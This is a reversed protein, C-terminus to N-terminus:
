RSRQLRGFALIAECEESTLKVTPQLVDTGDRGLPGHWGGVPTLLDLQSLYRLNAGERDADDTRQRKQPEEVDQAKRKRCRGEEPKPSQEEPLAPSSPSPLPPAMATISNGQCGSRQHHRLCPKRLRVKPSIPTVLLFDIRMVHDHTPQPSPPSSLAAIHADAFPQSVGKPAENVPNVTGDAQQQQQQQQQQEQEQKKKKKQRQHTRTHQIMNDYRTFKRSCSPIICEFPKEGTHMRIHRLLHENRTFTMQCGGHGSCRFVRPTDHRSNKTPPM